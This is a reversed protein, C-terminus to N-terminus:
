DRFRLYVLNREMAKFYSRLRLFRPVMRPVTSAWWVWLSWHQSAVVCRFRDAGAGATAGAAGVEEPCVAAFASACISTAIWFLVSPLVQTPFATRFYHRSIEAFSTVHEDRGPLAVATVLSVAMDVAFAADCLADALLTTYPDRPDMTPYGLALRYPFAWVEYSLPLVMFKLWRQVLQMNPNLSRVSTRRQSGKPLQFHVKKLRQRKLRGKSRLDARLARKAPTLLISSEPSVRPRSLVASSINSIPNRLSLTTAASGPRAAAAKSPAAAKQAPAKSADELVPDAPVVLLARAAEAWGNEGALVSNKAADMEGDPDASEDGNESLQAISETRGVSLISALPQNIETDQGISFPHANSPKLNPTLGDIVGTNFSETQFSQIM